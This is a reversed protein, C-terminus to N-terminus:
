KRGKKNKKKRGQGSLGSAAPQPVAPSSPGPEANPAILATTEDLQAHPSRPSDGTMFNKFSNSRTVGQDSIRRVFGKLSSLRKRRKDGQSETDNSGPTSPGEPDSANSLASHHSSTRPMAPFSIRKNSINSPTRSPSPRYDTVSAPTEIAPDPALATTPAAPTVPEDVAEPALKVSDAYTEPEVVFGPQSDDIQGDDQAPDPAAEQVTKDIFADDAVFPQDSVPQDVEDGATADVEGEALASPVNQEVEEGADLAREKGKVSGTLSGAKPTTEGSQAATNLGSQALIEADTFIQKKWRYDTCSVTCSV